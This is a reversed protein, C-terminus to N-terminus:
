QLDYRAHKMLKYKMIIGQITRAMQDSAGGAGAPVIFEVPKTPEWAAAPTAIAVSTLAAVVLLLVGYSLKRIQRKMMEEKNMVHIGTCIASCWPESKLLVALYEMAAMVGGKKHSVGALAFGM